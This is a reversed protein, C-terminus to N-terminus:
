NEIELDYCRNRNDIIMLIGSNDLSMLIKMYKIFLMLSMM